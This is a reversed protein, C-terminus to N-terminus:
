FRRGSSIYASMWVGRRVLRAVAALKGSCAPADGGAATHLVVAVRQVTEADHRRSGLGFDCIGLGFDVAQAQEDREFRFLGRM